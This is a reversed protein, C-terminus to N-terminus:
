CSAAYAAIPGFVASVMALAAGSVCVTLGPILVIIGILPLVIGGIVKTIEKALACFTRNCQSRWLLLAGLGVLTLALGAWIMWPCCASLIIAAVGAGLLSQGSILLAAKCPKNPCFIAYFIGAIAAILALVGATIFLATAAAPVCIALLAALIAM